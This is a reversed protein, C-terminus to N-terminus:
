RDDCCSQKVVDPFFSIDHHDDNPRLWQTMAPYAPCGQSAAKQADCAMGFLQLLPLGFYQGGEFSQVLWEGQGQYGGDHFVTRPHIGITKCAAYCWASTVMSHAAKVSDSSFKVPSSLQARHDPHCVALSAAMFLIDGPYALEDPNYHIRGSALCLGSLDTAETLDRLALPIGITVCFGFIADLCGLPNADQHGESPLDPQAETM